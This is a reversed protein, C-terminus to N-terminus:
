ISESTGRVEGAEIAVLQDAWASAWEKLENPELPQPVRSDTHEDIRRALERYVKAQESDAAAEITTKGKLESQTVTLSRPVYQMVQTHTREVFDDVIEVQVPNTISNAVVGGL